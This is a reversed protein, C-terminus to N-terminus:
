QPNKDVNDVVFASSELGGKVRFTKSPRHVVFPM